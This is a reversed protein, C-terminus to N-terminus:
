CIDMDIDMDMDMDMDMDIDMDMDMDIDMNTCKLVSALFLSQLKFYNYGHSQLLIILSAIYFCSGHGPSM